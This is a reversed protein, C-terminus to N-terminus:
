MSWSSLFAAPGCCFSGTFVRSQINDNAPFGPSWRVMFNELDIIFEIRRGGGEQALHRCYWTTGISAVPSNLFNMSPLLTPLPAGLGVALTTDARQVEHIHKGRICVWAGLTGRGGPCCGQSCRHHNSLSALIYM